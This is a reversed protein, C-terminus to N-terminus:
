NVRAEPFTSLSWVMQQPQSPQRSNVSLPIFNWISVNCWNTEHEFQLLWCWSFSQFKQMKILHEDIWIIILHSTNLEKYLLGGDGWCTVDISLHINFNLIQYKEEFMQQDCCIRLVNTSINEQFHQNLYKRLINTSINEEFIPQSIQQFIPQSIKHQEPLFSPPLASRPGSELRCSRPWSWSWVEKEFFM